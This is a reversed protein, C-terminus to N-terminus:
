RSRKLPSYESEAWQSGYLTSVWIRILAERVPEPESRPHRGFESVFTYANLMNLAHAVPRPDFAPTLGLEQDVRIRESVTDDFHKVFTLWASDLREDTTAADAIAKFFPGRLHFVTVIATLSERVLAVPDGTSLIWPKAAALVEVELMGLLTEMLEQLDKFYQYFASRSVETLAMLGSVTMKNFPRSWLFELAASLIAERTRESKSLVPSRQGVVSAILNFRSESM